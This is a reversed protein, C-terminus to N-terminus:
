KIKLMLKYEELDKFYCDDRSYQVNSPLEFLANNNERLNITSKLLNYMGESRFMDSMMGQPYYNNLDKKDLGIGYIYTEKEPGDYFTAAKLIGRNKVKDGYGYYIYELMEYNNENKDSDILNFQFYYNDGNVRFSQLIKYNRPLPAFPVQEVSNINNINEIKSENPTLSFADEASVMPSMAILAAVPIAKITSTAYSHRPHKNNKKGEFALNSYNRFSVSSIPRIAM